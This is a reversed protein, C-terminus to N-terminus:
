VKSRFFPESFREFHERGLWTGRHREDFRMLAVGRNNQAMRLIGVELGPLEQMAAEDDDNKM